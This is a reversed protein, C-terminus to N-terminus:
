GFGYWEEAWKVKWDMDIKWLRNEGVPYELNKVYKPKREHNYREVHVIEEEILRMGFSHM